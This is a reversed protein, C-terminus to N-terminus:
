ISYKRRSIEYLIPTEMGRVPYDIGTDQVYRERTKRVVGDKKLVGEERWEVIEHFAEKLEEDSLKLIIDELTM